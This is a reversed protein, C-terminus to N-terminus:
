TWFLIKISVYERKNDLGQSINGANSYHSHSQFDAFIGSKRVRLFHRYM